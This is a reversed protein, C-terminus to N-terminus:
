AYNWIFVMGKISSCKALRVSLNSAWVNFFTILSLVHTEQTFQYLRYLNYSHSQCWDHLLAHIKTTIELKTVTISKLYVNLTSCFM